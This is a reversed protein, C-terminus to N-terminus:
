VIPHNQNARSFHPKAMADRALQGTAACVCVDRARSVLIVFGRSLPPLPLSWSGEHLTCVASLQDYDFPPHRGPGSVIASAVVGVCWEDVARARGLAQLRPVPSAAAPSAPECAVEAM